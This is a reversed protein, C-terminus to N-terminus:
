ATPKTKNALGCRQQVEALLVPQIDKYTLEEPLITVVKVEAIEHTLEHLQGEIRALYLRGFGKTANGEVSYDCVPELVFKESGTEECLERVAAENPTEGTEIHGGPVEWTLRDRHRVILWQNNYLACIVVYTLSQEEVKGITYFKIQLM